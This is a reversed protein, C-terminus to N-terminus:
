LNETITKLLDKKTNFLIFIIFLCLIIIRSELYKNNIFHFLTPIIIAILLLTYNNTKYVDIDTTYYAILIFSTLVIWIEKNLFSSRMVIGTDSATFYPTTIASFLLLGKVWLNDLAFYLIGINIRLLWTLIPNIINRTSKYIIGFFVCFATFIVFQLKMMTPAKYQNVYPILTVLFFTIFVLYLGVYKTITYLKWLICFCVIYIIELLM